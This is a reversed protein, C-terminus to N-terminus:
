GGTTTMEPHDTSADTSAEAGTAAGQDPPSQFTVVIELGVLEVRITAGDLVDGGLLARGIRT